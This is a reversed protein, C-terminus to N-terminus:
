RGPEESRLGILREAEDRFGKLDSVLNWSLHPRDEWWSIARVFSQRAQDSEGLRHHIMALFFLEFATPGEPHLESVRTLTSRSDKLEDLRYQVVGLTHLYMWNNPALTVARQIIPLARIPDRVNPPGAVCLWALTNLTEADDPRLRILDHYDDIARTYDHFRVHLSARRNYAGADTPNAAILRDYLELAKRFDAEAKAPQDAQDYLLGRQYHADVDNGDAAIALGYRSIEANRSNEVASPVATVVTTEASQTALRYVRAPTVGIPERDVLRPGLVITENSATWNLGLVDLQRRFRALDWVQIFGTSTGLVMNTAGQSFSISNITAGDPTDFTALERLTNADYLKISRVSHTLGLVPAAPAFSVLGPLDGFYGRPIRQSPEDWRGVQWFRFESGTGVVLQRGNPSFAVHATGGPLVAVRQGTNTDWIPVGRGHQTGGAVWRGDPSIAVQRTNAHPELTTRVAGTEADLVLCQGPWWAVCVALVRGDGSFSASQLNSGAPLEIPVPPGIQVEESPGQEVKRVPWRSLKKRAGYLLHLGSPHFTLSDQSSSGSVSGFRRGSVLDWFVAVSGTTGAAWQGDKSIVANVGTIKEDAALSRFEEGGLVRWRGVVSGLSGIGLRSGDRSFTGAFGNAQLLARGDRPDWLWTTGDWGTSALVDGRPNFALRIVNDSHRALEHVAGTQVHIVKVKRRSEESTTALMEGDPSWVVQETHGSHRFRHVITKTDFDIVQLEVGRQVALKREYPHFAIARLTGEPPVQDLWKGSDTHYLQISDDNETVALLRGDPSIDFDAHFWTGGTLVRLVPEPRIAARAQSAEPGRAGIPGDGLDWLVVQLKDKRENEDRWFIKAAVFRGNPSVLVQPISKSTRLGHLRGLEEDDDIRRLVISSGDDDAKAFWEVDPDFAVGNRIDRMAIPRQQEEQLDVMSLCAIAENRLKLRESDDMGLSQLLRAAESLADLSKWRRGVLGSVRGVGSQSVLSEYLRRTARENAGQTDREADLARQLNGLAVNRENRLWVSSVTSGVTVVFLLMAALSAVVPNRQCWRWSREMLSSRRAQIPLYNLFRRLDDALEAASSYRRSPEKEIAKLVITELDRPINPDFKRPRPPEAQTVLQILQGRDDASFPPRLTLLEYLTAGLGYVDSRADSQGNFREPGMYRLTGVIDGSGTLDEGEQKALGFDTVWPCGQLDILLNSPKIDRHLVGLAHAHALADAVQMGIRTVSRFFHQDSQSGSDSRTGSLLGTGTSTSSSDADTPRDAHHDPSEGSPVANVVPRTRSEKSEGDSLGLHLSVDTQGTHAPEHNDTTEPGRVWSQTMMGVAVSEALSDSPHQEDPQRGRLVTQENNSVGRSAAVGAPTRSRKSPLRNERLRRVETIVADLGQGRIFQMVYFQVGEHEGIGFVPVINTHHLRAAARAERRFRELLNPDATAQPPLVKLAVHRGLSEQVAEYVVGMGGRGIEGLIRFDGLREPPRTRTFQSRDESASRAADAGVQELMVLAPFLERIEGALEPHRTTYETIAPREGRRYRDLFSEALQEILDRHSSSEPTSESM